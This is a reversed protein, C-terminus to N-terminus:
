LKTIRLIFKGGISDLEEVHFHGQSIRKIDQAHGEKVVAYTVPRQNLFSIVDQDNNLYPIPHPSWFGKGNIDIVAMDRDTYYRIGRVYFKSALVPTDSKDITNFVESIERCSVWPEIYPRAFFLVALLTATIAPYM